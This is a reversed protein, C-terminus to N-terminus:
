SHWATRPFLHSMLSLAQNFLDPVPLYAVFASLLVLAPFLAMVFYYSLAAAIQLTHQRNVDEYTQLLAAKVEAPRM